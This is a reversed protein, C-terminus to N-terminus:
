FTGHTIESLEWKPMDAHPTDQYVVSSFTFAHLLAICAEAHDQLCLRAVHLQRLAEVQQPALRFEIQPIRFVTQLRSHLLAAINNAM